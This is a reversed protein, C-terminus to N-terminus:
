MVHGFGKDCWINHKIVVSTQHIVEQISPKANVSVVNTKGLKTISAGKSPIVLRHSMPSHGNRAEVHYTSRPQGSRCSSAREKGHRHLDRDTSPDRGLPPSSATCGGVMVMSTAGGGCARLSGILLARARAM